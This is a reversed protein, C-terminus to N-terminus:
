TFWFDKRLLKLENKNKNRFVRHMYSFMGIASSRASLSHSHSFSGTVFYMGLAYKWWAFTISYIYRSVNPVTIAKGDPCVSLAVPRHAHTIASNTTARGVCIRVDRAMTIIMARWVFILNFARISRIARIRPGIPQCMSCANCRCVISLLIQLPFSSVIISIPSFFPFVFYYRIFIPHYHPPLLRLISHLIAIAPHLRDNGDCQLDIMIVGMARSIRKWREPSQYYAVFYIYFKILYVFRGLVNGM